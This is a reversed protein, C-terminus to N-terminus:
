VVMDAEVVGGDRQALLLNRKRMREAEIGAAEVDRAAQQIKAMAKKKKQVMKLRFFEEREQEDLESSIYSLTNQVRPIVVKELANVRRNTVKQAIDLTMWSTQLSAIKVLLSLTHRFATYAERIQEGGKGLGATLSGAAAAASPNGGALRSEASTEGGGGDATDNNQTQFSQIQVGAINEVQLAVQYTPIKLSEQVALSIDGAIFQAQTITFYSGKIQDVMELKAKRLEGLVMRYRLSLADAKKKLLSHGKQAGKLRTKFAILSMRSPLAPYRNTSSM